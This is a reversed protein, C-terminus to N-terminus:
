RPQVELAGLDLQAHHLEFEFRGSRDAVFSLEAPEAAPLALTLDYGHLHLEDQHDSTIRMTIPTGQAVSIVSNGGLLKGDKVALVFLKPLPKPEATTEPEATIVPAGAAGATAPLAPPEPRMWLFMAALVALAAIILLTNKM